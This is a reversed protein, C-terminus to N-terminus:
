NRQNNNFSFIEFVEINDANKRKQIVQGDWKSM